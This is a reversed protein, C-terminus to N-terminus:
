HVNYTLSLHQYQIFAAAALLARRGKTPASVAALTDHRIHRFIESDTV